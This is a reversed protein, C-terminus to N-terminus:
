AEFRYGFRALDAAYIREARARQAPSFLPRYDEAPSRREHPVTSVALGLRSAVQRYDREFDEFRGLFDCRDLHLAPTSMPLAHDRIKADLALQGHAPRPDELIDMLLDLSLNRRRAADAADGAPGRQFMRLCSCLRDFPNRVFAFTFLGDFEKRWSGDASILAAQRAGGFLGKM